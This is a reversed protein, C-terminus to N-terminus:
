GFFRFSVYKLKNKLSDIESIKTFDKTYKDKYAETKWNIKHFHCEKLFESLNIKLGNSPKIFTSVDIFKNIKSNDFERDYLRDYEVPYKSNYKYFDNLKQYKVEPKYGVITEFVNLYIDLVEQWTISHQNTIHFIQGIADKKNIISIIGKAVDEGSTLTTKKTMLPEPVVIKKGMLARYLWEEKEFVGLQLRESAYTIYPRIITWNNYGSSKLVNEQRAKTLPYEDTNLFLSDCSTELLLNSTEVIKGSTNSYVRASSIFIYQKTKSLLKEVRDKFEDTSYVMFDIITDWSKVDLVSNLFCLDHADGKIYDVMEDNLRDTRSTITVKVGERSLLTAISKGMAGTGGLLLINM